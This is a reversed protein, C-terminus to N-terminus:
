RDPQHPVGADILCKEGWWYHQLMLPIEAGARSVHVDAKYSAANTDAGMCSVRVVHKIQNALAGLHASFKLHHELLPDLSAGINKLYESKDVNHVACRVNFM